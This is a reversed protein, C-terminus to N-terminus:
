GASLQAQTHGALTDKMFALFRERPFEHGLEPVIEIDARRLGAQAIVARIEPERHQLADYVPDVAGMVFRAPIDHGHTEGKCAQGVPPAGSFFAGLTEVGEAPAHMYTNSLAVLVGWSFASTINHTIGLSAQVERYRGVIEQATRLMHPVTKDIDVTVRGKDDVAIEIPHWAQPPFFTSSYVYTARRLASMERIYEPLGAKQEPTFSEVIRIFNDVDARRGARDRKVLNAADAFISTIPYIQRQTVIDQEALKESPSRGFCGSVHFLGVKRGNAGSDNHVYVQFGDKWLERTFSHTIIHPSFLIPPTIRPATPVVESGGWDQASTDASMPTAGTTVAFIM